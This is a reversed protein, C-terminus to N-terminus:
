RYSSVYIKMNLIYDYLFRDGQQVMYAHSIPNQKAEHKASPLLLSVNTDVHTIRLLTSCFYHPNVMLNRLVQIDAVGASIICWGLPSSWPAFNRAQVRIEARSGPEVSQLKENNERNGWSLVMITVEIPISGRGCWEWNIIWWLEM